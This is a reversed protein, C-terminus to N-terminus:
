KNVLANVLKTLEEIRDKQEAVVSKLDTLEGKQDAVVSELDNIKQAMERKSSYKLTEGPGIRLTVGANVMNEGGGYSSGVSFMTDSNPCYFAGLALANASKYNGVGASIEWKSEPDYELPHLAALAAAGAGVRNVRNDLKNISNGLQNMGNGIASVASDFQGKNIADTAEVGAAINQVRNSGMSIADNTLTIDSKSSDTVKITVGSDNVTTNGTTVSGTTIFENSLVTQSDGTGITVNDNSISVNGINAKESVTLENTTVTNSTISNLDKLDKALKVDFGTADTNNVVGINGESLDGKAGGKIDLVDDKGREVKVGTDSNFGRKANNIVDFQGVIDKLQGETAARDPVYGKEAPNWTTNDLGTIYKGSDKVANGNEDVKDTGDANKVAVDQNGIVLGKGTEGITVQGKTGDVAVQNAGEGATIAAKTGDVTVQNAGTGATVTSNTGDVVVKNSGGDGASIIADNGSIAINKGNKDGFALNDSLSVKTGSGDKLRTVTINDGAVVKNATITTSLGDYAAKLQDETAARGSVIGDTTPNWATNALGTIYLGNETKKASGNYTVSQNAIYIGGTAVGDAVTGGIRASDIGALDKALKIQLGDDTKVVGVNNVDSLLSNGDADTAAVGGYITLTEGNKKTIAADELKDDGTFKLNANSVASDMDTKSAIDGVKFSTDDNRTITLTNDKFTAGTVYKDQLGNIKVAKGDQMTLTITGAGADTYEVKSSGITSGKLQGLNVIDTDETGAAVNTIKNGGNDLGTNSLKVESVTPNEVASVTNGDAKTYVNNTADYTADTLDSYWKGDQGQVLTNGIADKANAFTVSGNGMNIDKALKVRLADGDKVVGINNATTFETTGGLINLTAGNIKTITGDETTDDGTFKLNVKSNEGVIDATTAINDVEFKQDDNRTITLKNGDLSAGTVYKDQLGNIKVDKGDQMTLTITGAGADTYEVKSSGITSGKLQGLNVIDTDETGAAVNTIKNGGNDLGTNSLKVESVTPNEVASVTNGDAKTYVNNTADYTADTLDSYWKGDQGQVLTNGTADKANIFTISGDGMTLNKALKVNLTGTTTDAVVGINNDTLSTADTNGGVVNLTAGLDRHVVTDSDGKFDLGASGMDKLQAVNVADMDASGAAVGTIQRYIGKETNGVSVADATSMYAAFMNRLETRAAKLKVYDPNKTSVISSLSNEGDNNEKIKQQYERIKALSTNYAASGAPNKYLNEIEASLLDQNNQRESIYTRYQREQAALDSYGNITDVLQNYEATKGLKEAIAAQDTSGLTTFYGISGYSRDALSDYGLALGGTNAVAGQGIAISGVQKAQTYGGVAIADTKPAKASFGVAISDVGNTLTYNGLNM